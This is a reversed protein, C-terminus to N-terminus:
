LQSSTVAYSVTKLRFAHFHNWGIAKPPSSISMGADSCALGLCPLIKILIRIHLVKPNDFAFAFTEVPKESLM